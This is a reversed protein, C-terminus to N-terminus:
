CVTGRLLPPNELERALIEEAADEFYEYKFEFGEKLLKAPLVWRSKLILETETGIVLAGIKLLWEPSPLGFPINLTKRLIEMMKYNHLPNPASLNYVGEAKENCQLWEVARAFDEEHIWSVYQMGNGMKGGLGLRALNVLRKMVGDHKGFVIATRLIVKRVGPIDIENFTEEWKRCVEVSFGEGIEGHYEDMPRDEAHRYITASACNIWVPPPNNISNLAIGLAETSGTRSDFIERMNKENYRCNVSKGTLNVLLDANEIETLWPGPEKGNWNLYRINGETREKGRTLIIIEKTKEKYHEALTTGMFGSGGALIIKDYKM